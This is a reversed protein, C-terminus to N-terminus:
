QDADPKAASLTKLQELIEVARQAEQTKRYELCKAAEEQMARSTGRDVLSEAPDESEPWDWDDTRFSPLPQWPKGDV